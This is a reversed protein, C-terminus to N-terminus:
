FLTNKQVVQSTFFEQDIAKLRYSSLRQVGVEYDIMYQIFENGDILRIKFRELDSVYEEAAKTFSTTTIFIGIKANQKVLAGVFDRIQPEGITTGKWRKAQVYYKLEGHIKDNKTIIGDIGGDGSRGVTKTLKKLETESKPEPYILKSVVLVALEEFMAPSITKVKALLDEKLKTNHEQHLLTIQEELSYRINLQLPKIDTKQSNKTAKSKPTNYEQIVIKLQKLTDYDSLIKNEKYYEAHLEGHEILDKMFTKYGTCDQLMKEDITTPKKRLLSRGATTTEFNRNAGEILRAGMLHDRAEQVLRRFVKGGIFEMEREEPTLEFHSALNRIARETNYSESGQKTVDRTFTLLSLLTQEFTPFAM